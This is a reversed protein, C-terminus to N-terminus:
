CGPKGFGPSFRYTKGDEATFDRQWGMLAGFPHKDSYITIGGKVLVRSIELM